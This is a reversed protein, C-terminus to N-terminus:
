VEEVLDKEPATRPGGLLVVAGVVAAITSATLVGLKAEDVLGPDGYALGAVFISVTFGIGALGAM